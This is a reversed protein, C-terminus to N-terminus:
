QQLHERIDRPQLVVIVDPFSLNKWPQDSATVLRVCVNLKMDIKAWFKLM